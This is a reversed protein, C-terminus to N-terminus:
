DKSEEEYLHRGEIVIFGESGLIKLRNSNSDAGNSIYGKNRPPSELTHHTNTTTLTTPIPIPLTIPVTIPVTTSVPITDEITDTITGNSRSPDELKEEM